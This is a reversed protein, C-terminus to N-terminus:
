VGVLDVGNALAAAIHDYREAAFRSAFERQDDIIGLCKLRFVLGHHILIM